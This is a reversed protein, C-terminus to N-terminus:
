PTKRPIMFFMGCCKPSTIYQMIHKRMEPPLCLISNLTNFLFHPNIQAKLFALEASTKDGELDKRTLADKQMKSVVGIITSCSILVLTVIIVIADSVVDTERGSYPQKLHFHEILQAKIELFRDLERNVFVMALCLVAMVSIFAATRHKNLLHPVFVYLTCYFMGTYLLYFVIQKIWYNIPFSFCWILPLFLFLLLGGLIVAHTIIRLTIKSHLSM